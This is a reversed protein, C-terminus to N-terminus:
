TSLTRTSVLSILSLSPAHRGGMAFCTSAKAMRSGMSPARLGPLGRLSRRAAQIYSSVQRMLMKTDGHSLTVSSRMPGGLLFEIHVILAFGTM